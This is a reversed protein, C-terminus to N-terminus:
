HLDHSRITTLPRSCADRALVIKREIASALVRGLFQISFSLLLHDESLRDHFLCACEKVFCDMDRVPTGQVKMAILIFYHGEHFGRYMHIKAIASLEM